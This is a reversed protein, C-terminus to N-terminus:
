QNFNCVGVPFRIFLNFFLAQLSQAWGFRDLSQGTKETELWSTSGPTVSLALKQMSNLSALCQDLCKYPFNLPVNPLFEPGLDM